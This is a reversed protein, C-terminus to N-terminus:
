FPIDDDGFPEEDGDIGWQREDLALQDLIVPIIQNEYRNWIAVALRELLDFVALAHEGTLDDPLRDLTITNATTRDPRQERNM